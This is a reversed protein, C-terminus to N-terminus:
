FIVSCSRAGSMLQCFCDNLIKWVEAYLECSVDRLTMFAQGRATNMLSESPLIFRRLHLFLTAGTLAHHDVTANCM